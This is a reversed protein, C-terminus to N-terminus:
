CMDRLVHARACALLRVTHAILAGLAAGVEVDTHHHWYDRVRTLGVWLALLLPSLAVGTRWAAGGDSAARARARALLYGALYAMGATSLSTHGSPFSKRGERVLSASAAGSCLPVGPVGAPV